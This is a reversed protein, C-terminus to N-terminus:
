SPGSGGLKVGVTGILEVGGANLAATIAALQETAIDPIGDAGEAELIALQTMRCRKALVATSWNLLARGARIQAGSIM